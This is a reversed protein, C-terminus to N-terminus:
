PSCVILISLSTKRRAKKSALFQAMEKYTQLKEHSIGMLVKVDDSNFQQHHYVKFSRTWFESFWTFSSTHEHVCCSYGHFVSFNGMWIQTSQSCCTHILLTMRLSKPFIGKIKALAWVIQGNKLSGATHMEM